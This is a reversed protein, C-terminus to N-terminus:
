KQIATLSAISLNAIRHQSAVLRTVPANLLYAMRARIGSALAEMDPRM